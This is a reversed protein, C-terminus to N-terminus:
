QHERKHEKESTLGNGYASPHEREDCPVFHFEGTRTLDDGPEIVDFEIGVIEVADSKEKDELRELRAKLTAM